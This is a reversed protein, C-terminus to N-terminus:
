ASDVLEALLRVMQAQKLMQGRVGRPLFLREEGIGLRMRLRRGVRASVFSM